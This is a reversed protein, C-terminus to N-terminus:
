NRTSRNSEACQYNRYQVLFMACPSGYITVQLDFITRQVGFINQRCLSCQAQNPTHFFVEECLSQQAQTVSLAKQVVIFSGTRRNIAKQVDKQMTEHVTAWDWLTMIKGSSSWWTSSSMYRDGRTASYVDSALSHQDPAHAQHMAMVDIWSGM